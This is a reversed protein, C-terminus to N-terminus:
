QVRRSTAMEVWKSVVDPLEYTEAGKPETSGSPKEETTTEVVPKASKLARDSIKMITAQDLGKWVYMDLVEQYEIGANLAQAGQITARPSVIHSIGLDQIAKRISLIDTVWPQNDTLSRELAEDYDMSIFVFRDKAAGDVPSRGMYLRNAGSGITNGAAVCRFDPHKRVNGDPFYGYDDSLAANLLIVINPNSADYEDLFIVGGNEYRERFPTKVVLGDHPSKYGVIDTKTTEECLSMFSYELGLEGALQKSMTSKGCGAPGVLYLHHGLSLATKASEFRKHKNM